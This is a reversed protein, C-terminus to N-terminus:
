GQAELPRKAPITWSVLTCSDPQALESTCINSVKDVRGLTILYICQRKEAAQRIKRGVGM